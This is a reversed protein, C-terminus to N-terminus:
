APPPLVREYGALLWESKVFIARLFWELVDRLCLIYCLGAEADAWSRLELRGALELFRTSVWRTAPKRHWPTLLEEERARLFFLWLTLHPHRISREDAVLLLLREIATRLRCSLL